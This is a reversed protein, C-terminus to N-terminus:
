YIFFILLDFQAYIMRNYDYSKIQFLLKSFKNNEIQNYVCVKIKYISKREKEYNM